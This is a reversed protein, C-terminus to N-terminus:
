ISYSMSKASYIPVSIKFRLAFGTTIILYFFPIKNSYSIQATFLFAVIIILTFFLIHLATYSAISFTARKFFIQFLVEFLVISLAITMLYGYIHQITSFEYSRWLLLGVIIVSINSIIAAFNFFSRIRQNNKSKIHFFREFGIMEYLFPYVIFISPWELRFQDFYVFYLFILYSIIYFIFIWGIISFFKSRKLNPRFLEKISIINGFVVLFVIISYFVFSIDINKSFDIYNIWIEAFYLFFSLYSFLILSIYHKYQTNHLNEM